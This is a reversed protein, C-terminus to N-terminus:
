RADGQPVDTNIHEELKKDDLTYFGLTKALQQRVIVNVQSTYGSKPPRKTQEFETIRQQLENFIQDTSYASALAGKELAMLASYGIFGKRQRYLSRAISRINASSNFDSSAFAIAADYDGMKRLWEKSTKAPLLTVNTWHPLYPALLQPLESDIHYPVILKAHEGYINRALVILADPSPEKFIASVPYNFIDPNKELFREFDHRTILISFVIDYPTNEQTLQTLGQM